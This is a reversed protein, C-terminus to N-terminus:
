RGHDPADKAKRTMLVKKLENKGMGYRQQFYAYLDDITTFSPASEERSDGAAGAIVVVMEGLVAVEQLSARWSGLRARVIKEHKKSM